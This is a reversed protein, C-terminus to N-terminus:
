HLRQTVEAIERNRARPTVDEKLNKSLLTYVDIQPCGLVFLAPFMLAKKRKGMM